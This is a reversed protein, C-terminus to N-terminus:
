EDVTALHGDVVKASLVPQTLSQLRSAALRKGPGGMRCASALFCACRLDVGALLAGADIVADVDHELAQELLQWVPTDVQLCV